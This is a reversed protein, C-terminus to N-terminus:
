LIYTSAEQVKKSGEELSGRSSSERVNGKHTDSNVNVAQPTHKSRSGERFRGGTVGQFFCRQCKGQNRLTTADKNIIADNGDLVRVYVLVSGSIHAQKNFKGPVRMWHGGPLGKESM